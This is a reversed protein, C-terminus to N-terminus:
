FQVQATVCLFLLTAFTEFSSHRLEEKKKINDWGVVLMGVVLMGVGVINILLAIVEVEM